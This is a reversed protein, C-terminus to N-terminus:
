LLKLLTFSQIIVNNLLANFKEKRTQFRLSVFKAPSYQQAIVRAAASWM